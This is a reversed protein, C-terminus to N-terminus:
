TIWCRMSCCRIRQVWIPASARGDDVGEAGLDVQWRDIRALHRLAAARAVEVLDLQQLYATHKAEDAFALALLQDILHSAHDVSM